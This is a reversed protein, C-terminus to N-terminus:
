KGRLIYPQPPNSSILSNIEMNVWVIGLVFLIVAGVFLLLSLRLDKKIRQEEDHDIVKITRM